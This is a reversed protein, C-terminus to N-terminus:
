QLEYIQLKMYSNGQLLFVFVYFHFIAFKVKCLWFCSSAWLAPIRKKRLMTNERTLNLLFCM